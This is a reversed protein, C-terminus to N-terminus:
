LIGMSNVIKMDKILEKHMDTIKNEIAQIEKIAGRYIAEKWSMNNKLIFLMCPDVTKMPNENLFKLVKFREM